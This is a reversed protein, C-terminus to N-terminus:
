DNDEPADNPVINEDPEDNPIININFASVSVPNPSGALVGAIQAQLQILGAKHPGFNANELIAAAEAAARDEAM